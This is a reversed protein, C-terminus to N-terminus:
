KKRREVLKKRTAVNVGRYPLAGPLSVGALSLLKAGLDRPEPIQQYFISGAKIQDATIATLEKIGERVTIDVGAWLKKLEQM